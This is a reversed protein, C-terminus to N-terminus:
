LFGGSELLVEDLICLLALSAVLHCFSFLVLELTAIATVRLKFHLVSTLHVRYRRSVQLSLKLQDISVDTCRLCLKDVRWSTMDLVRVVFIVNLIHHLPQWRGARQFLALNADM